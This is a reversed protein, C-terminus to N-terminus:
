RKMRESLNAKVGKGYRCRLLLRQQPKFKFKYEEEGRLLDMEKLGRAYCDELIKVLLSRGPGYSQYEPDFGSLYFLYRNSTIFGLTIAIPKGTANLVHFVVEGKQSLPRLARELFTRMRKDDLTSIGRGKWRMESLAVLTRMGEVMQEPETLVEISAKHDDKLRNWSRSISHRYNSSLERLYDGYTGHIPIWPNTSNEFDAGKLVDRVVKATTCDDRMDRLDIIDFDKADVIHNWLAKQIRADGNRTFAGLRDSPGTGIFEEITIKVLKGIKTTMLPVAGVLEGGERATVVHLKRGEGFAEWWAQLWDSGLFLEQEDSTSLLDDWEEGMAVWKPYSHDEDIDLVML